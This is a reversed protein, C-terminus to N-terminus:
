STSKEKGEHEKAKGCTAKAPCKGCDHGVASADAVQVADLTAEPSVKTVIATLADASTKATEFTILFKGAETDAKAALLGEQKALAKTLDKVVAEDGVNPVTFVAVQAVPVEEKKPADAALAVAATLLLAPVLFWTSQVRM